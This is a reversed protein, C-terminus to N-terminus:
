RLSDALIKARYYPEPKNYLAQLYYRNYNSLKLFEKDITKKREFKKAPGVRNIAYQSLPPLSLSSLINSIDVGKAEDNASQNINDPTVLHVSNAGFHGVLGLYAVSKPHGIVYIKMEKVPTKPSAETSIGVLCFLFLLLLKFFPKMKPNQTQLIVPSFM